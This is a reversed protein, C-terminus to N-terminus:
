HGATFVIRMVEDPTTIGQLVKRLGDERLMLMGNAKAAERLDALPARRVILEAIEDNVVMMEFIGIRGKYGTHRCRDCGRGRALTIEENEDGSQPKFGFRRLESAKVKYEEKCEACIRRGLRQALVGIVTASILFPESGMDVLRTVASPADNTHLTSLVLHGTLSAEFAIEATELDRIEGVMIIDPDQRLFSRLASAFTLGAKRNVHVQSVGPLEYEVPDEITIINKEVSNIKHLISYQTTTKGHGTPGTSLLLGNPQIILNEVQAQTDPFFGLRNLGLLVSSKDLIRMVIKEGHITPLDSVRLDYDKGDSTIGIRGDQPIRREAINMESMIKFRSILPGQLYKPVNTYEHLVGDIRYRIRVNRRTPEVHIDSAQDLIAQKILARSLKVIPADEAGRIDEEVDGPASTDVGKRHKYQEAAESAVSAVDMSEGAKPVAPVSSKNEGDGGASGATGYYKRIATEIQDRTSLVLEVECNTALRVDDIALVNNPESTAVKLRAGNKSIPVITHNQALRLPVVNVASHDIPYSQLDVYEMGLSEGVAKTVEEDTAYGKEVIIRGLDGRTARQAELAKSLQDSTIIDNAVLIDSLEKRAM